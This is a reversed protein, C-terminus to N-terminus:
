PNGAVNKKKQQQQGGNAMGTALMDLQKQMARIVTNQNEVVRELRKAEDGIIEKDVNGKQQIAFSKQELEAVKRKLDENTVTESLSQSVKSFINLRKSAKKYEERLGEPYLRARNQYKSMQAHGIFQEAAHDSVGCDVLTSVLLDRVLHSKKLYHMNYGKAKELLGANDALKSFSMMVWTSSVPTRRKTIFIPDDKGIPHGTIKEREKLWDQLCKIADRDQMIVHRVETKPRIIEIPVPCMSLDWANPDESGFYRVIQSYAKTNFRDALTSADMGGHFKAMFLAKEMISPRGTTLIDLFEELTMSPISDDDERDNQRFNHENYSFDIPCDHKAFFSKIASVTVKMTARYKDDHMPDHLYQKIIKKFELPNSGEERYLALLHSIGELAVEDCIKEYLNPGTQALRTLPFKKGVLWVHFNRLKHSYEGRTGYHKSQKKHKVASPKLMGLWDAVEPINLFDDFSIVNNIGVVNQELIGISVGAKIARFVVTNKSTIKKIGDLKHQSDARQRLDRPAFSEGNKLLSLISCSKPPIKTNYDRDPDYEELVTYLADPM